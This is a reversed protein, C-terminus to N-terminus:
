KDDHNMVYVGRSQDGDPNKGFTYDNGPLIANLLIGAVAAVAGLAVAVAQHIGSRLIQREERDEWVAM